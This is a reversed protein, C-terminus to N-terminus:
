VAFLLPSAFHMWQMSLADGQKEDYPPLPPPIRDTNKRMKRMKTRMEQTSRKTYTELPFMRTASDQSSCHTKHAGCAGFNNKKLMHCPSM